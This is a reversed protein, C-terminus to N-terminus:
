HASTIASSKRSPSLTCRVLTKKAHTNSVWGRQHVLRMFLRLTRRMSDANRNLVIEEKERRGNQRREKAPRCGVVKVGHIPGSEYSRVRVRDRKKARWGALPGMHLM